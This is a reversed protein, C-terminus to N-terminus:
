HNDPGFVLERYKSPLRELASADAKKLHVDFFISICAATVTLGRRADIKGITDSRQPVPGKLLLSKDSFNFHGSDRLTVYQRGSGSHDYLSKIKAAIQQDEGTLAGSHDAVFFMFPQNIGPEASEGFLQGDLDIGAKFRPDKRCIMAATAGGFSHGMVGVNKLDLRGQFRRDPDHNNLETLRDLVFRDDAIWVEMVRSSNTGRPSAASNAPVESGDKHVVLFTNGPSDSAVVIYGHSALDECITTYDLALAGIGPKMIVVPWTRAEMSVDVDEFSHCDVLSPDRWMKSAGPPQRKALATRWQAPIYESPMSSKNVSAPYWVWVTPQRKTDPQSAFPDPRSKDTWELNVRGVPLPGSLAPLALRTNLEATQALALGGIGALILIPVAKRLTALGPFLFSRFIQSAASKWKMQESQSVFYVIDIAITEETVRCLGLM